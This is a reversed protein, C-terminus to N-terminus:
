RYLWETLVTMLEDLGTKKLSSFLQLSIERDGLQERLSLLALNQKHRGLKDAKNGLVHVPINVQECWNILQMEEVALERRIDSVLILGSLSRRSSLYGNILKEWNKIMADDVRAYGYGPLDVLRVDHGVEFFNILRTRGPTKSTRALNKQDTITNIVSSKGSNSRGVFAVELGSDEPFQSSEHASTM